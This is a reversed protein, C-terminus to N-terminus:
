PILRSITPRMESPSQDHEADSDRFIPESANGFGATMTLMQPVNASFASANRLKTMNLIQPGIGHFLRQRLESTQDHDADSPCDRAVKTAIRRDHMQSVIVSCVAQSDTL